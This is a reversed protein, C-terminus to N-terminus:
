GKVLTNLGLYVGKVRAWRARWDRVDIHIFGDDYVGIGGRAFDPVGNALDYMAQLGLPPIRVDAARGLQHQSDGRGGVAANHRACRYGSDVLVPMAAAARLRELAPVLRPDLDCAGCDPCALEARSFHESLDGM